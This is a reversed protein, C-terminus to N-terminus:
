WGKLLLIFCRIMAVAWLTVMIYLLTRGARRDRKMLINIAISFIVVLIMLIVLFTDIKFFNVM